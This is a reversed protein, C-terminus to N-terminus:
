YASSTPFVILLIECVTAIVGLVPRSITIGIRRLRREITDTM